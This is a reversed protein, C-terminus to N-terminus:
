CSQQLQELTSRLLRLQHNQSQNIHQKDLIASQLISQAASQYQQLAAFAVQSFQTLYNRIQEEEQGTKSAPPQTDGSSEKKNLLYSAGGLVAAGVPGSLLLGVGTAIAVPTVDKGSTSSSPAATQASKVSPAPPFAVWLDAPRPQEFFECAKHVPSVVAKQHHMWAPRFTQTVWDEFKNEQLALTASGQYQNLLNQLELWTQLAQTQARFDQQLLRQAKQKIQSRKEARQQVEEQKVQLVSVQKQLAVTVQESLKQLRPMRLRILDQQPTAIFSQLAAELMPLGSNTLAAGDGQLRSRLAPLADVRYLNSIGPPLHSRFSEAIFRLRTMVQKQDDPEVLNLFNVVFIVTSIGQDLLWDRLQERELLTMLQRGDVVQIVLDAQLLQERVIEDQAEQDNTGPLDIFEVGQTLLPATSQVEISDVDGRMQRQDDLTAYEELIATGSESIQRGDTLNIQTRLEPGAKVTIAAGTAPILDMPLLRDGLLANLLTSKGFNFPGFVAIRTSPNSIRDCGTLVQQRLEENGELLGVATQLTQVLPIESM